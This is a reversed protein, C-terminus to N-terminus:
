RLARRNYGAQRKLVHVVCRMALLQLSRYKALLKVFGLSLLANAIMYQSVRVQDGDVTMIKEFCEEGLTSQNEHFRGTKIRNFLSTKGVSVDGLLIINYRQKDAM